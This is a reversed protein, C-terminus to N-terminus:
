VKVMMRKREWKRRGHRRRWKSEDSVRQKESVSKKGEKM